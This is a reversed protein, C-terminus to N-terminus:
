KSLYASQVALQFLNALAGSIDGGTEVQFYLGPSACSQLTTGITSQFTNVPQNESYGIGMYWANTPLPLYDTYLVAIRIGRNKITTCLATNIVSQQRNGNVMEDEVGDTVLFLVEQPKDGSNNTGSGPNPMTTNISTMATDFNTDADQNNNTPTLWNNYYVELQSINATANKATTLNSTLSQINTVGVDFTYIGMRYSANNSTEKTQATTTLNQAAQQVNDIRLAVGLNRALAYNDEGYPNGLGDLGPNSEHCAFACGGQLPTNAVMTNIGAQTAAIGMSPSSDLLLYFDINPALGGTATSSGKLTMTTEGLINPFFLKYPTAYSVVAVRTGGSATVSVTVNSTSYNVTTLGSAQSNFTNTAAASAVSISQSMMTPTVAALAAADAFGNLKTQQDAAIGYDVGAGTLMLMPIAAVAVIMAVNGESRKLFRWM